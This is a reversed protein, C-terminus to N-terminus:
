SVSVIQPILKSWDGTVLAEGILVVDAGSERYRKVDDLTKVSSEAVKIVSPPLASALDDFLRPDTHFTKLDRTNIGVLRADLSLAASVEEYSHTEVLVGLNLSSAFTMLQKAQGAELYSLILLVFSAGSARAELIQYESSIFDKRLVPVEVSAAVERLDELSGQFGSAETLVSIAHAGSTQYGLALEAPNAIEALFGKSPSARKIEAILKVKEAPKLAEYVDLPGPLAEVLKELESRSVRQEREEADKQAQAFLKDLM